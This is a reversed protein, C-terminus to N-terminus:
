WKAKVWPGKTELYKYYDETNDGYYDDKLCCDIDNGDRIWPTSLARRLGIAEVSEIPIVELEFLGRFTSSDEEWDSKIHLVRINGEGEHRWVWPLVTLYSLCEIKIYGRKSDVGEKKERPEQIVGLLMTKASVDAHNALYYETLNGNKIKYMKLPCKLKRSMSEPEKGEKRWKPPRTGGM